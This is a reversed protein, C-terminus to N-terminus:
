YVFPVIRWPVVRKYEEWDKKYKKKCKEEDRRERHLLLVAFYVAYFYPVPSGFGTPICWAVGMLWDGLYNVHRAM